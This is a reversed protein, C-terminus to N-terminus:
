AARRSTNDHVVLGAATREVQVFASRRIAPQGGTPLAWWNVRFSSVRGRTWLHRIDLRHRNEFFAIAIADRYAQFGAPQEIESEITEAELPMM